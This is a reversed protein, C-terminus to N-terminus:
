VMRTFNLTVKTGKGSSSELTISASHDDMIQRALYLGLGTGSEKTTFFPQFLNASIRPDVGKGNDTVTLRICKDRPLWQTKVTIKGNEKPLAELANTLLNYIVGQLYHSDLFARPIEALEKELVGHCQKISSDLLETCDNIVDNLNGPRLRCTGVKSFELLTRVIKAARRANRAILSLSTKVNEDQKQMDALLEATSLIVHLPSKIDHAFASTLQGVSSLHRLRKLAAQFVQPDKFASWEQLSVASMLMYYGRHVGVGAPGAASLSRVTLFLRMSAGQSTLLHFKSNKVVGTERASALLGDFEQHDKDGLLSRVNKELIDESSYGLLASAGRSFVRIRLDPDLVIIADTSNEFLTEFLSDKLGTM